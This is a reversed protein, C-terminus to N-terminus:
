TKLAAEVTKLSRFIKDRMDALHTTSASISMMSGDPPDQVLVQACFLLRDLRKFTDRLFNPLVKKAQSGSNTWPCASGGSSVSLFVTCCGSGQDEETQTVVSAFAIHKKSNGTLLEGPPLAEGSTAINIPPGGVVSVM